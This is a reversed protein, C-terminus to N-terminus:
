TGLTQLARLIKNYLSNRLLTEVDQLHNTMGRLEFLLDDALKNRVNTSAREFSSTFQQLLLEIKDKDSSDYWESRDLVVKRPAERNSDITEFIGDLVKWNLTYDASSRDRSEALNDKLFVEARRCLALLELINEQTQFYSEAVQSLQGARQLNQELLELKQALKQKQEDNRAMVGSRISEVIPAAEKVLTSVSSVATILAALEVPM